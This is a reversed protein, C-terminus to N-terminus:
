SSVEWAADAVAAVVANLREVVGVVLVDEVLAGEESEEGEGCLADEARQALVNWVAMAEAWSLGGGARNGMLRTRLKRAARQAAKASVHRSWDVRRWGDRSQEYIGAVYEKAVYEKLYRV